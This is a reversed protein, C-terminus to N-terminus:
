AKDQTWGPHRQGLSAPSIGASDRLPSAGPPPILGSAQGTGVHQGRLFPPENRHGTPRRLPRVEDEVVRRLIIMRTRERRRGARAAAVTRAAAQAAHPLEWGVVGRPWGPRAAAAERGRHRGGVPRHVDARPRRRDDRQGRGAGLHQVRDARAALDLRHVAIRVVRRLRGLGLQGPELGVDLRDGGVLRVQDHHVGVGAPQDLRRAANLIGTRTVAPRPWARRRTRATRRARGPWRGGRGPRAPSRRPQAALERLDGRRCRVMRRREGVVVLQVLGVVRHGRVGEDPLQQVQEPHLADRVRRLPRRGGAAVRLQGGLEDDLGVRVVDDQGVGEAATLVRRGHGLAGPQDPRVATLSPCMMASLSSMAERQPGRMVLRSRVTSAAVALPLPVHAPGARGPQPWPRASRAPRPGPAPPWRGAQGPWRGAASGSGCPRGGAAQAWGAAPGARRGAAPVPCCRRRRCDGPHPGRRRDGHGGGDQHGGHGDADRDARRVQRQRHDALRQQGPQGPM